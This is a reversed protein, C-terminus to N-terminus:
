VMLLITGAERKLGRPVMEHIQQQLMQAKSYDGESEVRTIQGRIDNLLAEFKEIGSGLYTKEATRAKPPASPPASKNPSKFMNKLRSSASVPPTAPIRQSELEVRHESLADFAATFGGVSETATFGGVSQTEQKESSDGMDRDARSMDFAPLERGQLEPYRSEMNKVLKKLEPSDTAGREKVTSLPKHSM